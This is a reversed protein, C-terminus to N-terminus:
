DDLARGHAHRIRRRQLLQGVRPEGLVAVVPLVLHAVLLEDLEAVRAAVGLAPGPDVPDGGRLHEGEAAPVSLRRVPESGPREGVLPVAPGVRRRPGHGNANRPSRHGCRTDPGQARSPLAVLTLRLPTAAPAVGEERLLPPMYARVLVTIASGCAMSSPM